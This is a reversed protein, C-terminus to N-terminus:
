QELENLIDEMTLVGEKKIGFIEVPVINSPYAYAEKIQLQRMYAAIRMNIATETPKCQKPM